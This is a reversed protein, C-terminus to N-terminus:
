IGKHLASWGNEESNQSNINTEQKILEAYAKFLGSEHDFLFDSVDICLEIIWIVGILFTEFSFFVWKKHENFLYYRLIRERM